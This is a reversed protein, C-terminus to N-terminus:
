ISYRIHRMYSCRRSGLYGHVGTEALFRMRDLRQEYMRWILYEMYDPFVLLAQLGTEFGFPGHPDLVGCIPNGENIIIYTEDGYRQVIRPVHEYLGTARIEEKTLNTFAIYDEIDGTSQFSRLAKLIRANEPSSFRAPFHDTHSTSLHMWDPIFTRYFLEDLEALQDGYLCIEEVGEYTEALGGIKYKYAGYWHPCVPIRGTKKGAFTDMMLQKATM